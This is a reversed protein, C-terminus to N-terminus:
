ASPEQQARAPQARARLSRHRRGFDTLRYKEGSFHREILGFEEAKQFATPAPKIDSWHNPTFWHDLLGQDVILCVGHGRIALVDDLTQAEGGSM